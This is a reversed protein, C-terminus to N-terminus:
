ETCTEAKQYWFSEFEASWDFRVTKTVHIPALKQFLNRSRTDGKYHMEQSVTIAV